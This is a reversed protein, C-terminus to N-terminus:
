DGLDWLLRYVASRAPDDAIGYADLLTQEWGPGYNWVTSWTAVALDAWRDAVGLSGMDVHGTWEGDDGIITNPSCADGHCVVLDDEVITAVRALAEDVTLHRHEPDWRQPALEARRAEARAIRDAARWSFPCAVVPLTDHLARLGQGIARVATAPEALWRPAVASQGPVPSTVIWSGNHDEGEAILRPVPTRGQLWVLRRAEAPLDLGSGAPAWKIFRRAANTGVEYTLGDLENRWVVRLPDGLALRLVTKPTDVHDEPARAIV